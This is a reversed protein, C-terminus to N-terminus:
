WLMYIIKLFFFISFVFYILYYKNLINNLQKYLINNDTYIIIHIYGTRNTTIFGNIVINFTITTSVTYTM